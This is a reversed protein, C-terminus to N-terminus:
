NGRKQCDMCLPRGFRKLSYSNVKDSITAGCAQCQHTYQTNSKAPAPHNQNVPRPRSDNVEMHEDTRADAEPDDGTSIALSLLYAYKIAATEAKMVAKDGVDQGSGIGHIQCTDGSETDTLEIAMSVTALHEMTGRANTVNEMSVLEPHAASAIGNRVLSDNVRELVDASTAYRYGHYSNTGNKQIHSCEQMVKSLKKALEKM